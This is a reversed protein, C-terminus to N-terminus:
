ALRRYRRYVWLGGGITVLAVVAVSAWPSFGAEKAAYRGTTVGFAWDRIIRAHQDLAILSIWRAGTFGARSLGEALVNTTVIVGLFAAAAMWARKIHASLVAVAGGHVGLYALTVVPVQWLVALNDGLYHLFGNKSLSALGIHLAVQPVIYISGAALLYAVLKGGLYDGVTLPRSFYVALVGQERDPVLLEPGAIAVFLLAIRSYFNFLEAYRPLGQELGAAVSGAVFHLGIFVAAAVFSITLLTWPLIKRRAKRRLGLVRRVGDQVVARRAASRGLREGAYRRYGRDYIVSETM